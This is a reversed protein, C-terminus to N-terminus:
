HLWTRIFTSVNLRNCRARRIPAEISGREFSRPFVRRARAFHYFGLAEISGREFSRPFAALAAILAPRSAAEISGREFSRPFRARIGQRQRKIFPKLPAVNSHVHFGRYNITFPRYCMPKLPAVNSHVHFGNM